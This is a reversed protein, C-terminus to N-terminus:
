AVDTPAGKLRRYRAKLWPLPPLLLIMAVFISGAPGFVGDGVFEFGLIALGLAMCALYKVKEQGKVDVSGQGGAHAQHCEM